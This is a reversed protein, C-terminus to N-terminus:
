AAERLEAGGLDERIAATLRESLASVAAAGPAPGIEVMSIEADLNADRLSACEALQARIRELLRQAAADDAITVVFLRADQRTGSDSRLLKEEGAVLCRELAGRAAVAAAEEADSSIGRHGRPLRVTVLCAPHVALREANWLTGLAAAPTFVPLTFRFVSGREAGPEVWIRGGQRTVLERCIYLGLGLGKRSREGPGGAQYLQEFVREREEVRIGPGDDAVAVVLADRGGPPEITVRISGGEPTFKIANELLNSVVQRVRQPDANVMPLGPPTEVTLSLRRSAAAAALSQTTDCVLDALEMCAPEIALKGSRARSAELLDGIMGRLQLVNRLALDLYERQAPTIAGVLGDRLLTVFQYIATLPSRLEHSVHSAFRDRAAMQELRSRELDEAIRTRETIDWCVGVIWVVRGKADRTISGRVGLVHREGDPWAVAAQLDVESGARLAALIDRTLRHRGDPHLLPRMGESRTPLAEPERGFLAAARDGWAISDDELNWSWTTFGTAALTLRLREESAHLDREVKRREDDIRSLLKANWWVLASLVAVVALVQLATGIASDYLGLHEGLIRLWGIVVPVAIAAPLLHRAMVGGTTDRSAVRMLGADARACLLGVSLMFLGFATPLAMPLYDGIGFFSGAGYAYGTLWFTAIAGIAVALTQAANVLHRSHVELLVLASGFLVLCIATAPAMHNPPDYKVLESGFLLQDLRFRWGFASAALRAFGIAGVMGALVIAAGHRRARAEDANALRLSGGMLILTIATLPNMAVQGPLVCKIMEIGLAWGALVFGGITIGVLGCGQSISHFLSRLYESRDSLNM